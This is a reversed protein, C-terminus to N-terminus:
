SVQENNDTTQETKSDGNQVPKNQTPKNQTDTATSKGQSCGM